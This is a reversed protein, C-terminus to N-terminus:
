NLTATQLPGTLNTIKIMNLRALTNSRAFNNIAQAGSTRKITKGM